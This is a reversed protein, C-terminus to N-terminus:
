QVNKNDGGLPNMIEFIKGMKMLQIYQDVKSKRSEKLYPKLSNLLNTRSDNSKDNMATMVQQLKFFTNIDFNEFPNNNKSTESQQNIDNNETFNNTTNSENSNNSNNMSNLINKVNEPMQGNNMMQSFNKLMESMDNNM